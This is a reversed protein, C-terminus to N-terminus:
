RDRDRHTRAHEIVKSVIRNFDPSPDQQRIWDAAAALEEDSPTLAVLDQFHVSQTGIDDAAAYLKFFVLDRRNVV